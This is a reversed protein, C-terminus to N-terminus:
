TCELQLTDYAIQLAKVKTTNDDVNKINSQKANPTIPREAKGVNNWEFEERVMTKILQIVEEKTPQKM